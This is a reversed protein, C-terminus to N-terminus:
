VSKINTHYQVSKAHFCRIVELKIHHRKEFSVLHMVWLLFHCVRFWWRVCDMYKHFSNWWSSPSQGKLERQSGDITSFICTINIIVIVCWCLIVLNSMWNMVNNHMHLATVKQFTHIFCVIPTNVTCFSSQTLNSKYSSHNSNQWKPVFKLRFITRLKQVSSKVVVKM